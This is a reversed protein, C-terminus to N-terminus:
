DDTRKGLAEPAPAASPTVIEGGILRDVVPVAVCRCQFDQGPHNREGTVPNTVPPQSWKFTKGDLAWHDSQSNAWVGGPRGRVREDKSTTWVYSDIGASVQRQQTIQNNLKLVQDRAILQAKSKPLALAKALQDELTEVRLTGVQAGRVLEEVRGLSESGVSKIRGVNTRVFERVQRDFAESGGPQGGLVRESEQINHRVVERGIGTLPVEFGTTLQDLEAQLADFAADYDDAADQRVAPSVPATGGKQETDAVLPRLRRLVLERVRAAWTNVLTLYRLQAAKSVTPALSRREAPTLVRAKPKRRAFRLHSVRM